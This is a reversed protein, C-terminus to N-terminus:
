IPSTTARSSSSSSRVSGGQGDPSLRLVVLRGDRLLLARAPSARRHLSRDGSSRSTTSRTPDPEEGRRALADDMFKGVDDDQITITERKAQGVNEGWGGSAGEVVMGQIIFGDDTEIFVVGRMGRGDSRAGVSRLVEGLGVLVGEDIRM